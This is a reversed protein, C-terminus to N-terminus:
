DQIFLAVIGVAAGIGAVILTWTAMSLTSRGVKIAEEHRERAHQDRRRELESRLNAQASAVHSHPIRGTIALAEHLADDTLERAIEPSVDLWGPGNQSHERRWLRREEVFALLWEIEREGM